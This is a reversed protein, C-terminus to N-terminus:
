QKGRLFAFDAPDDDFCNEREQIQVLQNLYPLPSGFCFPAAYEVAERFEWQGPRPISSLAEYTITTIAQGGLSVSGVVVGLSWTVLHERMSPGGYGGSIGEVLYQVSNAFAAKHQMSAGTNNAIAMAQELTTM